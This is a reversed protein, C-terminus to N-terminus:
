SIIQFNELDAIYEPKINLDKLKQIKEHKIKEMRRLWDDRIQKNKRYEEIIEREKMKEREEKEKILKVLDLNHEIKKRQKEEEIRREKEMEEIQNRVIKEYEEKEQKAKEMLQIEKEKKQKENALILDALKKKRIMEEEKEKIRAQREAEDFARKARLADLEAQKDIAKEQKERLRQTEKEKEDQIRKKERLEEEEKKAKEVNYKFIKLDEEREELLKKQKNLLAIRNTEAIEKAAKENNIKKLEAARIEQAHLEKIQLLMMKQERDILEQQKMRERDKDKIQDIVILCGNKNQIKRYLERDQQLKLEKLRELEMMTDLKDEKKKFVKEMEKHEAKQRDRITAVRAYLSLKEM